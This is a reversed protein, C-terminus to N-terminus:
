REGDRLGGSGTRRMLVIVTGLMHKAEINCVIKKVKEKQGSFLIDDLSKADVVQLADRDCIYFLQPVYFLQLFGLSAHFM